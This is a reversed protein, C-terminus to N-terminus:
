VKSLRAWYISVTSLFVSLNVSAPLSTQSSILKTMVPSISAIPSSSPQNLTYLNPRTAASFLLAVAYRSGAQLTITNALSKSVLSQIPWESGATLNATNTLRIATGTSEDYSYIGVTALTASSIASTATMLSVTNVETDTIPTFMTFIISGDQPTSTTFVRNRPFTEITNIPIHNYANFNNILLASLNKCANTANSANTGGNAVSLLGSTINSANTTDTTASAALGAIKSTAIQANDAVDSNVILSAPTQFVGDIVKAVGTGGVSPITTHTHSPSTGGYEITITHNAGSAIAQLEIYIRDSSLVSTQPTTMSISTQLATGNNTVTAEGSTLISTATTGNYKYLVCRIKTPANINASSRCWVNFDIIGAPITTVSPDLLDSVFNGVVSWNTTSLFPSTISTLSIQATKGLEKPTNSLGTTPADSAVNPNFYYVVGGGGSGGAAPSSPTWASGSWTLVNGVAPATTSISNGRIKAVTPNPYTGSLDGGAPGSTGGSGGGLENANIIYCAQAYLPSDVDLGSLGVWSNNFGVNSNIPRASLTDVSGNVAYVVKAYINSDVTLPLGIYSNNYSVNGNSANDSM